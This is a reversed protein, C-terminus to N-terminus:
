RFNKNGYWARRKLGRYWDSRSLLKSVAVPGLFLSGTQTRVGAFVLRPIKSVDLVRGKVRAM